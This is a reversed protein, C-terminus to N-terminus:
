KISCLAASAEADVRWLVFTLNIGFGCLARHWGCYGIGINVSAFCLAIIGVVIVMNIFFYILITTNGKKFVKKLFDGIYM